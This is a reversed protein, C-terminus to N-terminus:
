RRGKSNGRRKEQERQMAQQQRQAEELRAMFGSKKKPKAANAAMMARVKDEKVFARCIYNQAIQIFLSLFYYYSLGSAYNNFFVLFMLPMLYMMWKMGPMQSSSQSQMNIHMYGLNAITMLLCWLSIHNGFYNTIFPIQATWTVIADPASLDKAWLFSEGRLDICSPFFTFVSILIPMSLLMPLCGGFPSAGARSYLEMTKQQRKLANEQGPYADNIEKIDPALIRMKAQSLLSKYTFPFLITKIILTLLLIIIGYNTFYKGLWDFIPIVLVQNIWRFLKWGLPVLRTLQLEEDPSYKDYSSMLHYKNPGIYLLFSAPAANASNYEISTTAELNKLYMQYDPSDKEIVKSTMDAGTMHTNAILVTSFFQNKFSLWKLNENVSKEKDSSESLNDVDGGAYKYYIGSNREEFMKGAEQRPMKQQWYIDLNPINAPIVRDMGKQVMDMRVMYSGQELTYKLAWTSGEGLDLQMTVTSDNAEIPTFYFDGTDFRQSNTNFIFGLKNFDSALLDVTPTRFTSYQLLSAKSIAAGKTDIDLQLVDNKITVVKREGSLCKAFAGSKSYSTAAQKVAAITANRLKVDTSNCADLTVTTDPLNIIGAVQGDKLSLVVGDNELTYTTAGNEAVDKRGFQSITLELQQLDAASLTDATLAAQQADRQAKQQQQAEKLQEQRQAEIEEQSPKNLYMFGFIVIFMLVLGTITNKDM